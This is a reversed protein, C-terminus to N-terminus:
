LDANQFNLRYKSRPLKRINEETEKRWEYVKKEKLYYANFM